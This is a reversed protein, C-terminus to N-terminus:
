LRRLNKRIEEVVSSCAGGAAEITLYHDAQADVLTKGSAPFEDDGEWYTILVPFRPAFFIKATVDAKGPLIEGGLSQCANRFEEPTVDSFYRAFMTAIDKDFGAGRALGGPMESLGIWRDSLPTGDATDMYQLVTLHHWMELKQDIEYDPFSIDIMKGMSSFHFVKEESDFVIGGKECLKEPTYQKLRERAPALMRQMQLSKQEQYTGKM